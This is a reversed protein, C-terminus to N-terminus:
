TADWVPVGILTSIAQADERIYKLDGHDIINIRSSDKLVVNIEYSYFEDSGKGGNTTCVESVIQIAHIDDLRVFGKSDHDMAHLRPGRRGKWFYGTDKDFVVPKNAVYFATSSCGVFLPGLICMFIAMLGNGSGNVIMSVGAVSASIGILCCLGLLLKAGLLLRVTLRTGFGRVINHTRFNSGGSKKPTWQTELAIPDNSQTPDFVLRNDSIQQM